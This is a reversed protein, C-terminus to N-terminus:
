RHRSRVVAGLPEESNWDTNDDWNDGDTADYFSVLNERDEGPCSMVTITYTRTTGDEATVVIEIVTEGDDELTVTYPTGSRVSNGDVTIRARSDSATPTLTLNKEGYADRTYDDKQPDLDLSDEEIELTELSADSSQAPPGGGGGGGGSGGGGGGGGSPPGGGGGPTGGPTSGGTDTEETDPDPPPDAPPNRSTPPRYEADRIEVGLDNHQGGVEVGLAGEDLVVYFLEDDYDADRKTRITSSGTTQGARIVIPDLPLEIDEALEAASPVRRGQYLGPERATIPISLVCPPTLAERLTAWVNVSEGENVVNSSSGFRFDGFKLKLQGLQTGSCPTEDDRIRIQVSSPSGATVGSPLTGLAM